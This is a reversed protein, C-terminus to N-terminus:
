SCNDCKYYLLNEQDTCAVHAWGKCSTCQVWDEDTTENCVICETLGDQEDTDMETTIKNLVVKKFHLKRKVSIRKYENERKPQKVKKPQASGGCKLKKSKRMAVAKMNEESKKVKEELQAKYPSGTLIESKESRRKRQSIKKRAEGTIPSIEATVRQFLPSMFSKPRGFSHSTSPTALSTQTPRAEMTSVGSTSAMGPCPPSTPRSALTSCSPVVESSSTSCSPVANEKAPVSEESDMPSPGSVTPRVLVESDSTFHAAAIYDLDSFIGKNLPYLGTCAFGSKALEMRCVAMFATNVLSAIDRQAIKLPRYKQMWRACAENYAAKFPRMITRDLPQLKHTTHPPLSIMHVNHERAYLIVKLEKHSSHGDLIILAPSEKTPNVRTIFMKLWLLFSNCTIWGSKECAFISGEPADKKLEEALKKRGFVFLPPIFTDGTANISLLVTVNRGREGSTIKSVQKKGKQSLVMTANEHVVSVGTEDCNFIKSPSFKFKASIAEYKNFFLDVQEKNFGVARQISTSQPKRLTIDPHHSLFKYYFKDGAERKEKNFQHPIKLHEAMEFVFRLFEKKNLPMMRNDLDKLHDVLHSELEDSFTPKFRGLQPRLDVARGDKLLKIRDSLTSKPVEFHFSAERIGIKNSMVQEVAMKMADESWNGKKKKNGM